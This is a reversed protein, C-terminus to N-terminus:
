IKPEPIFKATLWAVENMRDHNEAEFVSFGLLASMFLGLMNMIMDERSAFPCEPDTPDWFEDVMENIDDMTLEPM